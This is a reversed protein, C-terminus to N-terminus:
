EDRVLLDAAWGDDELRERSRYGDVAPVDSALYGSTLFLDASLRRGLTEVSELTINAVVAEVEPLPDRTADAVRLELQVANVRANAATTEIAVPDLDLAFVPAFGLRAAAIAIVGSGCGADLLAGRPLRQLLALCLRTTPHSGTGFARGPDIVIAPTGEPASAWPPGVWVQGIRVPRHFRRWRDPWDAPVRESAAGGFARRLRQEGEADTYASLEVQASADREEFGEPFLELMLAHAAELRDRSVTV